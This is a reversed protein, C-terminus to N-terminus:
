SLIQHWLWVSLLGITISYGVISATLKPALHHSTALVGASIMSPMAAELIIVKAVLGQVALLKLVGLAFLPSLLLLYILGIALPQLHEKDLRLRWQLGVAVMVVPVLTLAIRPLIDNLWNPYELWRCGFALLLAIFPPFSIINKWVPPSHKNNNSYYSAIAVGATNLALFTGFQDYLIAYPLAENGLFAQLLPLGVFSTNGLPVTLMLAGTVGRSWQCVRGTFFVLVATFLMVSWALVIPLLAERNLTLKPIEHLVVAPLAVYIIYANLSIYADQPFRKVRQLCLGILLCVIVLILNSM